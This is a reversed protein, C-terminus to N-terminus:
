DMFNVVKIMQKLTTRGEAVVQMLNERLEVFNESAMAAKKIEQSSANKMVLARINSDMMIIEHVAARGRYGTHNCKPCGAGHYFHAPRPCISTDWQLLEEEPPEYEEKCDECILKVLRQSVVGIVSSAVMYPEVGMDILRMFASAADNTHVTTLVLHGTVAARAAISATEQDRVEGVMIIDPDQRMLARLGMAFTLGAKPNVQVQTVNPVYKEVPDEITVANVEPVALENLASYLTTTKGSGTPGTVLVIGNPNSILRRFRKYNGESMGLETAKVINIQNDGLIRIVIKEGYISPMTSIRFNMNKGGISQSFRGDQPVRKEAIDLESMIKFRTVLPVLVNTNLVMAEVLDSDIRYRININEKRPEIHIDSARMNVAQQIITNVLKVVPSSDVREMMQQFSESTEDEEATDANRYERQADHITSFMAQNAYNREIAERVDQKAALVAAVKKGTESEIEGLGYYDLPNDTAVLLSDGEVKLPIVALREAMERPVVAIAEISSKLRDAPLIQINLRRSLARMKNEETIFGLEILVDGLMKKQNSNKQYALAETLQDETIYGAEILVEGLKLNKVM